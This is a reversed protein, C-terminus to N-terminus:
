LKRCSEVAKFYYMTEEMEPKNEPKNWGRALSISSGPRVETVYGVHTRGPANTKGILDRMYFDHEYSDLCGQADPTLTIEVLDGRVANSFTLVM